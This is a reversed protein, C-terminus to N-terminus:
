TISTTSSYRRDLALRKAPRQDDFPTTVPRRNARTRDESTVKKPTSAGSDLASRTGPSWRKTRSMPTHDRQNSVCGYEGVCQAWSLVNVPPTATVDERKRKREIHIQPQHPKCAKVDQAADIQVQKEIPSSQERHVSEPTLPDSRSGSAVPGPASFSLRSGRISASTDVELQRNSVPTKSALPLRESAIVAICDDGQPGSRPSSENSRPSYPAYPSGSESGSSSGSSSAPSASSTSSPSPSLPAPSVSSCIDVSDLNPHALPSVPSETSPSPEGGMRAKKSPRNDVADSSIHYRGTTVPSPSSVPPAIMESFKRKAGAACSSTPSTEDATSEESTGTACISSGTDTSSVGAESNTDGARSTASYRRLAELADWDFETWEDDWGLVAVEEDTPLMAIRREAEKLWDAPNRREDAIDTWAKVVSSCMDFFAIRVPDKTKPFKEGKKVAELVSPPLFRQCLKKMRLTNNAAYKEYVFRWSSRSIIVQVWHSFEDLDMNNCPSPANFPADPLFPSDINSLFWDRLIEWDQEVEEETPGDEDSQSVNLKELNSCLIQAEECLKDNEAKIIEEVAIFSEAAAAIALAAEDAAEYVECSRPVALLRENLDKWFTHFAALAEDDGQLAALFKDVSTLFEQRIDEDDM